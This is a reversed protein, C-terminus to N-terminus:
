RECNRGDQGGNERAGGRRGRAHSRVANARSGDREGALHYRCHRHPLLGDQRHSTFPPSRPRGTMSTPLLCHYQPLSRSCSTSTPLISIADTQSSKVPVGAEDLKRRWRAEARVMQALLNKSRTPRALVVCDIEPVDAGETLVECNVLVPFDATRFAEMTDRRAGASMSSTLPRADIGAHRFASVLDAVHKLNVAFM